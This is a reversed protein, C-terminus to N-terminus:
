KTGPSSSVAEVTFESLNNPLNEFVIMFPTGVGPAININKRAMGARNKLGKNIQGIPLDRLDKEKFTNGAYAMKRMVTKGNDDLISGRVLIFSRGKPYDNRVIGRIVFLTGGDRSEVFNGNVARFSLRRNGIDKVEQKTTPKLFSFSDPLLDPAFFIVAAVGGIIVVLLVIFPLLLKPTTKSKKAKVEVPEDDLLDVEEVNDDGSIGAEPDVKRPSAKKAPAKKRKPPLPAKKERVPAKEATKRPPPPTPKSPKSEAPGMGEMSQDM